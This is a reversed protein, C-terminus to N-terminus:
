MEELSLHRPAIKLLNVIGSSPRHGATTHWPSRKQKSAGGTCTSRHLLWHKHVMAEVPTSGAWLGWLLTAFSHHLLYTVSSVDKQPKQVM